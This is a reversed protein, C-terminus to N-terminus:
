RFLTLFGNKAFEDGNIDVFIMTYYYTGPSAETGSFTKGDWFGDMGNWTFMVDGWRNLITAQLSTINNGSVEFVDNQGDNNPTSVNPIIVSSEGCIVITTNSTDPCSNTTSYTITYIGMGSAELNITGTTDNIVGPSTITFVGGPTGSIVPTPDVSPFCYTSEEFNYLATDVGNVLIIANATDGCTGSITYTITWNGPGAIVPDFTGLNADTVGTGSWVGGTNAATLLISGSNECIPGVTTITPNSLTSITIAATSIDPCIGTTSYTVTFNGTGSAAIDIEGTNANIVGSHDITFIGGPTGGITPIPNPDSLCITSQIYNFSADDQPNVTITTVDNDGCTAAITYSINWTGTGAITPDFIGLNADTIGNGSWTGGGDVAVLNVTGANECLPAIATITADLNSSITLQINDSEATCIGAPDDTTITLTATSLALDAAGPTYTATLSNINDFTGDGSSTWTTSIVGGASTGALTYTNSSCISNDP